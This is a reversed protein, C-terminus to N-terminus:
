RSDSGGGPGTRPLTKCVRVEGLGVENSSTSAFIMGDVGPPQGDFEDFPEELEVRTVDKRLVPSSPCERCNKSRTASPFSKVM